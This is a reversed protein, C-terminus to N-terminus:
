IARSTRDMDEGEAEALASGCDSCWHVAKHGRMVHGNAVIRGLARIIDAEVSFDMTLYPRSWDGIVGLRIFDERQREGPPRAYARCAQRFKPPAVPIGAKGYLNIEQWHKLVEPERTALSAKM